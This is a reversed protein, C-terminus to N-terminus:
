ATARCSLSNAQCRRRPCPRWPVSASGATSRAPDVARRAPTAKRDRAARDGIGGEVGLEARRKEALHDVVLAARQLEREGGVVGAAAADRLPDGGIAVRARAFDIRDIPDLADREVLRAVVDLADALVDADVAGTEGRRLRRRRRAGCIAFYGQAFRTSARWNTNSCEPFMKALSALIALRAPVASRGSCPPRTGCHSASRM